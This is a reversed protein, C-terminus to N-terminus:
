FTGIEAARISSFVQNEAGSIKEFKINVKSWRKMHRLKFTLFNSNQPAQKLSVEM